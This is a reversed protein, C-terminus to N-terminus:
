EEEPLRRLDKVRDGHIVRVIEICDADGQLRLDYLQVPGATASLRRARRHPQGIKSAPCAHRDHVRHGAIRQRAGQRSGKHIYSLIEDIDRLARPAYVVKM